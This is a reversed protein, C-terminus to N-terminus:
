NALAKPRYAELQQRRELARTSPRQVPRQPLSSINQVPSTTKRRATAVGRSDVEIRSPTSEASKVVKLEGVDVPAAQPTTRRVLANTAASAAKGTAKRAAAKGVVVAGATAAGAVGGTAAGRAVATAAGAAGLARHAGTAGIAARPAGASGGSGGPPSGPTRVQTLNIPEEPVPTQPLPKAELGPSKSPLRKLLGSATNAMSAIASMKLLANSDKPMPRMGLGLKSLHQAVGHGARLTARRARFILIIVIILFLILFVMRLQHPLGGTQGMIWTTLKLYLALCVTMVMLSIAGMYMDSLAKWLPERNIPLIALYVMLMAKIAAILFFVVSIMLLAAIVMGFIFMVTVGGGNVMANLINMGGPNDHAFVAAEPACDRLSAQPEGTQIFTDFSGQCQDPLVQAYSIVQFPIRVFVDMLTANVSASLSTDDTQADADVVISTALQGGFDQAKDLVGGAATLSAVPNALVGVALVAIVAAILMEWLGGSVRGVFLALGGVLASIMLAFPIWNLEGLQEQLWVALTNFPTSLWAVWEFSLLFDFLWLIVGTAFYQISWLLQVVFNVVVKGPSWVDGADIDITTYQSFANGHSDTYDVGDPLFGAAHAARAQAFVFYGVLLVVALVRARAPHQHAWIRARWIWGGMTRFADAYYTIM